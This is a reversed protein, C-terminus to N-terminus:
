TCHPRLLVQLLPCVLSNLPKTIAAFDFKNPLYICTRSLPQPSTVGLYLPRSRGTTLSVVVQVASPRPSQITSRPLITPMSEIPPGASDKLTVVSTSPFSTCHDRVPLLPTTEMAPNALRSYMQTSLSRATCSWLSAAHFAPLPCQYEVSIILMLSTDSAATYSSTPHMIHRDVDNSQLAPYLPSSQSWFMSSQLPTLQEDWPVHLSPM